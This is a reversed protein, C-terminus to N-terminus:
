EVKWELIGGSFEPKLEVEIRLATAQVPEFEVRNFKDLATGFDGTAAVPKWDGADKYLLRWSKPVRCHRKAREDDFWYVEVASVKRPEELDYQAWEKTGRHDWWTFRPITHDCSDKPEVQDNMASVGDRGFCHSASPEALEM